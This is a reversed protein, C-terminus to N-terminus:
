LMVFYRVLIPSAEDSVIRSYRPMFACSGGRFSLASEASLRTSLRPTKPSLTSPLDRSPLNKLWISRSSTACTPLGLKVCFSSIRRRELAISPKLQEVLLVRSPRQAVVVRPTKGREGILDPQERALKPQLSRRASFSGSRRSMRASCPVALHAECRGVDLRENRARRTGACRCLATGAPRAETRQVADPLRLESRRVGAQPSSRRHGSSPTVEIRPLPASRERTKELSIHGSSPPYPAVDPGRASHGEEPM